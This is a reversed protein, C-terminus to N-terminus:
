RIVGERARREYERSAGSYFLFLDVEGEKLMERSKKACEASMKMNWQYVWEKFKLM